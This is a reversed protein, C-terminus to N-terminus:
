RFATTEPVERTRFTFLYLPETAFDNDISITRTTNTSNDSLALANKYSHWRVRPSGTTPRSAHAVTRERMRVGRKTHEANPQIRNDKRPFYFYTTM